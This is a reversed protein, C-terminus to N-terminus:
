GLNKVEELFQEGRDFEDRFLEFSAAGPSLLVVDRPESEEQALRVAEAMTRVPAHTIFGLAQDKARTGHMGWKDWSAKAFHSAGQGLASRLKETASGELLVVARIHTATRLAHALEAYDLNKDTGGTILVIRQEPFARLAAIVADPTTATTDNVFTRGDFERIVELRDPLGRFERLVARADDLAAGMELALLAGALMNRKTHDGTGGLEDWHLIMEEGGEWMRVIRDGVRFLGVLKGEDRRKVTNRLVTFDSFAGFWRHQSRTKSAFREGSPEDLPLISVDQVKQYKAINEKAAVYAAMNPYRNLHDPLITTLVAWHPSVRLPEIGELQWSSLELVVPTDATIRDLDALPSRQINGAVVTEPRTRRLIEGAVATATSKGRTGTVGAIPSPCFQFFLTTDMVVPTGGAKARVLLPAELPVAPNRIVLDAEDVDRVDHGGLRFTIPLGRLDELSGRLGGADKQDTVHVRADHRVLWKVVETGGKKTGLGFVTVRMGHLARPSAPLERM